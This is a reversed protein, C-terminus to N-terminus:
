DKTGVYETLGTVCKSHSKFVLLTLCGFHVSLVLRLVVKETAQFIISIYELRMILALM